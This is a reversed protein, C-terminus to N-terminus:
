EQRGETLAARGAPTLHLVGPFREEVLGHRELVSLTTKNIWSRRPAGAPWDRRKVIALARFQAETLRM